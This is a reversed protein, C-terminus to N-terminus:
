CCQTLDREQESDRLGVDSRFVEHSSTLGVPDGGWRLTLQSPVESVVTFGKVATGLNTKLQVVPLHTRVMPPFRPATKSNQGHCGDELHAELHKSIFPKQNKLDHAPKLRM